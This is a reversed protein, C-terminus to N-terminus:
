SITKNAGAETAGETPDIRFHLHLLLLLQWFELGNFLIQRM